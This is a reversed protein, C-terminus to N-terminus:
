NMLWLPIHEVINSGNSYLISGSLPWYMFIIQALGKCHLCEVAYQCQREVCSPCIGHRQVLDRGTTTVVHVPVGEGKYHHNGIMAAIHKFLYQRVQM